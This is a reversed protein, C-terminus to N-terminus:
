LIEKLLEVAQVTSEPILVDAYILIGTQQESLKM